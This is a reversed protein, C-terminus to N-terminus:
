NEYLCFFQPYLTRDTNLLLTPAILLFCFYLATYNAFLRYKEAYTAFRSSKKVLEIDKKYYIPSIARSKLCVDKPTAMMRTVSGM